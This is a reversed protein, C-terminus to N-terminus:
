AGFQSKVEPKMLLVLSWIGVPLGLCCCGACPIMAVVSAGIALGHSQLNRMKLAGFIIFGSLAICLLSFVVNGPGSMISAIKAVQPDNAFQGMMQQNGGRVLSSLGSLIGLGGTVLLLISPINLADKANSGAPSPGPVGGFAPNPEM